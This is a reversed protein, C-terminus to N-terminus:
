AKRVGELMHGYDPRFWAPRRNM